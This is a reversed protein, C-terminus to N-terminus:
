PIGAGYIIIASLRVLFTSNIKMNSIGHRMFVSNCLKRSEISVIYDRAKCMLESSPSDKPYILESNVVWNDQVLVAVQQLYKLVAATDHEPLLIERLKTFSIVKM